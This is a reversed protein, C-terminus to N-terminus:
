CDLIIQYYIPQTLVNLSISLNFFISLFHSTYYRRAEWVFLRSSAPYSIIRQGDAWMLGSSRDYMLGVWIRRSSRDWQKFYICFVRM